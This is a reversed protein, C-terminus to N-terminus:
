ISTRTKFLTIYSPIDVEEMAAELRRQGNYPKATIAFDRDPMEDDDLIMGNIVVVPNSIVLFVLQQYFESMTVLGILIIDELKVQFNLIM